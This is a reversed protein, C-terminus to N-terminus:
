QIVEGKIVEKRSKLTGTTDPSSYLPRTKNSLARKIFIYFSKRKM